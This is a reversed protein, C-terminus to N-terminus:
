LAARSMWFQLFTKRLNEQVLNPIRQVFLDDDLIYNRYKTLNEALAATGRISEVIAKGNHDKSFTTYVSLPFNFYELLAFQVNYIFNDYNKNIYFNFKL